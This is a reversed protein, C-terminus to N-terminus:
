YSFNRFLNKTEIMNYSSANKNLLFSEIYFYNLKIDLLKNTLYLKNKDITKINIVATNALYPYTKKLIKLLLKAEYLNDFIGLPYRHNNKGLAWKWLIPMSPSVINNNNIIISYVIYYKKNLLTM